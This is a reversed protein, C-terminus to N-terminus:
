SRPSSHSPGRSGPPPPSGASRRTATAPPATCRQAKPKSYNGIQGNPHALTGEDIAHLAVNAVGEKDRAELTLETPLVVEYTAVHQGPLHFHWMTLGSDLKLVTPIPFHWAAALHVEPRNM